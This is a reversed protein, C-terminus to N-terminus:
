SLRFPLTNMDFEANKPLAPALVDFVKKMDEKQKEVIVKKMTALVIMTMLILFAYIALIIWFTKGTFKVFVQLLIGIVIFGFIILGDRRSYTYSISNEDSVKLLKNTVFQSLAFVLIFTLIYM